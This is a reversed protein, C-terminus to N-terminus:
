RGRFELGLISGLRTSAAIPFDSTAPGDLTLLVGDTIKKYNAEVLLMTGPM